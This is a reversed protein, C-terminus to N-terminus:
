LCFYQSAGPRHTRCQLHGNHILQRYWHHNTGTLLDKLVTNFCEHVHDTQEVKSVPYVRSFSHKRQASIDPTRANKSAASCQAWSNAFTLFGVNPSRFLLHITSNEFLERHSHRGSAVAALKFKNGTVLRRVGLKQNKFFM